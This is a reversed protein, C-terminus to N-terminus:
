GVLSGAAWFALGAAVLSVDFPNFGFTAFLFCIAAVLTLVRSASVDKV